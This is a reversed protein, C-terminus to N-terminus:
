HSCSYFFFIESCRIFHISHYLLGYIHTQSQWTTCTMNTRMINEFCSFLFFFIYFNKAIKWNFNEDLKFYVIACLCLCVHLFQHVSMCVEYALRLEFECCRMYKARKMRRSNYKYALRNKDEYNKEAIRKFSIQELRRFVMLSELLIEM